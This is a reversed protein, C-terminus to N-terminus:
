AERALQALEDSNPPEVQWLGDNEDNMFVNGFRTAPQHPLNPPLIQNENHVSMQLHGPFAAFPQQQQSWNFPVYNHVM